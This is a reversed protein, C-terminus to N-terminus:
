FSIMIEKLPNETKKVQEWTFSSFLASLMILFLNKFIYFFAYGEAHTVLISKFTNRGEVCVTATSTSFFNEGLFFRLM